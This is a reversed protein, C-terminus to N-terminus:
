FLRTDPIGQYWFTFVYKCVWYMKLKKKTFVLIHIKYSTVESFHLKDESKKWILVSRSFFHTCFHEVPWLQM